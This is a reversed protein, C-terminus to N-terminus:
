EEIPIRANMDLHYSGYQSVHDYFLPTIARKDEVTLVSTLDEAKVVQQLLLINIYVLSSQVLHLSLVSLKHDNEENSSLIGRKGFFIFKNGSNWNEVVNLAEDIEIRLEESMLYKCMFTSRVAKGLELLAKYVTNHSNEVILRKLIVEVEATGIKLAVLYRVIEEYNQTILQWDIPKGIVDAINNYASYAVNRDVKAIKLKGIGKIRPRLEIGLLHCFAFAILSQGHTDTSHGDISVDTQHNIIGVLMAAVESDSCRRIQSSICLAKKEVHWYAMIGNGKYRIHYESMLNEDWSAIKTSDSAILSKVPNWLHKDRIAVTSNILKKIVHRMIESTLYRKKIYQLDQETTGETGNCIRKFDTNTAMSYICLLLRQRAVEATISSKELLNIIETMLGIRIDSEKLIDLLSLNGWKQVIKQKLISLNQPEAQPAHPTIFIHPKGKKKGIRVNINSELTTNLEKTAELLDKRVKAVTTGGNKDLNLLKFYYEKRQYFDTPLDQEPNSYKLSNSIWINKCKIAKQLKRLVVLEYYTKIVYGSCPSNIADLDKTSIIGEALTQDIPLYYDQHQSDNLCVIVNTLTNLIGSENTRLDLYKLLLIIVSRHHHIYLKNLHKYELQLRMIHKKDKYSKAQILQEVGGVQPYIAQRIIGDPENLTIEVLDDFLTNNTELTDWLEQKAAVKAKQEIKHFRRIFIETLSDLIKAGKYLCFCSLLGFYRCINTDRIVKLDSIKLIVVKDHYKKLVKRPVNEMLNLQFIGTALVYELKCIEEKITSTSIKGASSKVTYLVSRGDFESDILIDLHKKNELTLVQEISSFLSDEYDKYISNIYKHLEQISPCDIKEKYLYSVISNLAEGKSAGQVIIEKTLYNKIKLYDFKSFKRSGYYERIEADHRRSTRDSWEYNALDTNSIGLQDCIFNIISTQINNEIAAGGHIDFYRMKFAYVLKNNKTNIIKIENNSM